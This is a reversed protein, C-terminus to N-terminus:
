ESSGSSSITIVNGANTITTGGGGELTIAGAKENVSTVVGTVSPSLSNAVGAVSAYLAYPTASIATRPVLESGGDVSVGLYYARDFALSGPIPSVSGIIVNFLGKV